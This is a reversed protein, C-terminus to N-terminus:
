QVKLTKKLWAIMESKWHQMEPAKWGSMGHGGGEIPILECVAGVKHMAECMEPSQEYAVQDDKTGHICLFPAMGRHVGAIPAVARLKALGAEDLNEAGFFHIGAGNAAHRNISTMNFREPHDRRLLALKGYDIPGYFDVVAAVKTDPKEHTGAYNVLFGGASEGILAIKSIDVRYMAHHEKVWRIASNVDEIAEPFHFKPAMRYDISFWALGANALPEFLPRCNTSRSGEDFGGGHILIAAPFPGPGEPVHLDLLVPTGGPRTYELDKQDISKQDIAAGAATAACIITLFPLSRLM